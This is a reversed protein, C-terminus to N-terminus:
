KLNKNVLAESRKEVPFISGRNLTDQIHKNDFIILCICHLNCFQVVGVQLRNNQNQLSCSCPQFILNLNKLKIWSHCSYGISKGNEIYM